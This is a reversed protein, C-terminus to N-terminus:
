SLSTKTDIQKKLSEVLSTYTSNDERPTFAHPEYVWYSGVKSESALYYGFISHQHGPILVLTGETKPNLYNSRYCPLEMESVM